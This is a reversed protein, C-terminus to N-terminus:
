DLPFWCLSCFSSASVSCRYEKFLQLLFAM